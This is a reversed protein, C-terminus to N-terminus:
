GIVPSEVWIDTTVPQALLPELRALLARRQPLDEYDKWDKVSAWTSIVLTTSQESASLLTEGSIYGPQSLALIRLDRLVTNLDRWVGSKPVRKMLVRIAM